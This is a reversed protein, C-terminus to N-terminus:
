LVLKKLSIDEITGLFGDQSTIYHGLNAAKESSSGNLIQNQSRKM